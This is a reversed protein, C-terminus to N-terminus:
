QQPHELTFLVRWDGVRLRYRPPHVNVLRRVDGSDTEAFADIAANIRDRTVRDQREVDKLAPRTWVVNRSM